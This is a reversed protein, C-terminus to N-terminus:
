QPIFVGQIFEEFAGSAAMDPVIVASFADKGYKEPPFLARMYEGKYADRVTGRVRYGRTLLELAIHSGVYGNVGTILILSSQPLAPPM